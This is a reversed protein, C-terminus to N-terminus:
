ASPADSIIPAPTGCSPCVAGEKYRIATRYGSRKVLVEGCSICHTDADLGLVNGPYVYPLDARLRDVVAALSAASTAPKRYNRSPHYASVHLAVPVPLDSIFASLADIEPETDNDGPIILTTVELHVRGAAARIFAATTDFDGDLTDHYYDPNMSKLDINAADLWPILRSAPKERLNGNSVLVNALGAARAEKCCALVYEFHVLPESYTYAISTTGARQAERILEEPELPRPLRGIPPLTKAIGHNQCFPCDMSCGYFGVSFVGTGPRFHYLPKKEIPDVAMASSIGQYPLHLRGDRNFRVGCRGAEGDAITCRHSCLPCPIAGM